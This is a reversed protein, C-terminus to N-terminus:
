DWDRTLGEWQFTAEAKSRSYRYSATPCGGSGCQLGDTTRIQFETEDANLAKTKFEIDHALYDFNEHVAIKIAVPIELDDIQNTPPAASPKGEKSTLAVKILIAPSLQISRMFTGTIMGRVVIWDGTKLSHITTTDAENLATLDILTATNKNDSIGSCGNTQVHYQDQKESSKVEYVQLRWEVIKGAISKLADERQLDTHDSGIKFLPCLASPDIVSVPLANLEAVRQMPTPVYPPKPAECASLLVVIISLAIFTFPRCSPTHM